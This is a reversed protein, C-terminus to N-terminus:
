TKRTCLPSNNRSRDWDQKADSTVMLGQAVVLHISNSQLSPIGQSEGLSLEWIGLVWRASNTKM